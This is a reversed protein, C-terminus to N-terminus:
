FAECSPISLTSRIPHSVPLLLQSVGGWALAAHPEASAIATIYDKSEWIFNIIKEGMERVRFPRGMLQVVLQDMRLGHYIQRVIADMREAPRFTGDTCLWQEYASILDPQQAKLTAYAQSWLAESLPKQAITLQNRHTATLDETRQRKRREAHSARSGESLPMKKKGADGM